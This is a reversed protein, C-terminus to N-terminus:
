NKGEHSLDVQPKGLSDSSLSDAQLAASVPPAPEVGSDPLDGRPPFPLGKWYEQRSFQMSLPAQFAVAWPTVFLHVHCCTACSRNQNYHLAVVTTHKICINELIM